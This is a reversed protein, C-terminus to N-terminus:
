PKAQEFSSVLADSLRIRLENSGSNATIVVVMNDEPFDMMINTAAQGRPGAKYTGSCYPYSGLRGIAISGLVQNAASDLAATVTNSGHMLNYYMTGADAASLYMGTRATSYFFNRGNVAPVTPNDANHYQVYPYLSDLGDGANNPQWNNFNALNWNRMGGPKFANQRVITRFDTAILSDLTRTNGIYTMRIKQIAPLLMRVIGYDMFKINFVGVGASPTEMTRKFDTISLGFSDLGARHEVLHRFTISKNVAPIRWSKPCYSFIFSDLAVHNLQLTSLLALHTFVGSISDLALISGPTFPNGGAANMREVGRAYTRVVEGNQIIAYSLGIANVSDLAATLNNAFSDLMQDGSLRNYDTGSVTADHVPNIEKNCSIFCTTIAATITLAINLFLKKM